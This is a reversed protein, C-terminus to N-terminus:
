APKQAETLFTSSSFFYSNQREVEEFEDIWAQAEDASVLGRNLAAM